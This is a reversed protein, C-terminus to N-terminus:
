ASELLFSPEFEPLEEELAEALLLLGLAREWGAELVTMLEFLLSVPELELPDGPSSSSSFLLSSPESFRLFM